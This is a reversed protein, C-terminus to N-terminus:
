LGFREDGQAHEPGQRPKIVRSRSAPTLGLEAAFRVTDQRAARLRVAAEKYSAKVEEGDQDITVIPDGAEWCDVINQARELDVRALVYSTLVGEDSVALLGMESLSGTVYHWHATRLEDNAIVEPVPPEGKPAIPLERRATHLRQDARHEPPVLAPM